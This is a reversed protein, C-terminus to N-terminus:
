GHGRWLGLIDRLEGHFRFERVRGRYCDLIEGQWRVEALSCREGKALEIIAAPDSGPNPKVVFQAVMAM